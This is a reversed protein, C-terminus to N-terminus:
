KVSKAIVRDATFQFAGSYAASNLCTNLDVTAGSSDKCANVKHDSGASLTYPGGAGAVPAGAVVQDPQTKSVATVFLVNCGNIFVDLMSNNATYGQNCKTMGSTLQSPVKITALSAATVSGCMEGGTITAFTTLGAMDHESAGHGPGHGTSDVTPATAVGLTATVNVSSLDLQAAAGGFTFPLSVSGPGATLTGSSINGPLNNLATYPSPSVSAAQVNYWVDMDNTGDYNTTSVPNAAVSGITFSQSTAGTLDTLGLFDFLASIEGSKVAATIASQVQGQAASGVASGIVNTACFADTSFLITLSNMRQIQEFTCTASCGDFNLTNGDDCQEGPDLVGNGCPTSVAEGNQGMDSGNACAVLNAAVLCGIALKLIRESM